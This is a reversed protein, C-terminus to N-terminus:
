LTKIANYKDECIISAIEKCAKLVERSPPGFNLTKPQIGIFYIEKCSEKLIEILFRTPIRHTSLMIEKAVRELPILFYEGPSKGMITADVIVLVDPKEEAIKFVFAEPSTGGLYVKWSACMGQVLKGVIMGASDDGKLDNGIALLM